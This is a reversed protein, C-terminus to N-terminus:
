PLAGAESPDFEGDLLSPGLDCWADLNLATTYLGQALERANSSLRDLEQEDAPSDLLTQAWGLSRELIQDSLRMYQWLLGRIAPRARSAHEAIQAAMRNCVLEDIVFAPWSETRPLPGMLEHQTRVQPGVRAHAELDHLAAELFCVQQNRDRATDILASKCERDDMAAAMILEADRSVSLWETLALLALYDGEGLGGTTEIPQKAVRLGRSLGQTRTLYGKEELRLLM